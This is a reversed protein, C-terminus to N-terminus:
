CHSDVCSSCAALRPRPPPPPPPRDTQTDPQLRNNLPLLPPHIVEWRTFFKTQDNLESTHPTLEEKRERGEDKRTHKEKKEKAEKTQRREKVREPTSQTGAHSCSSPLRRSSARTRHLSAHLSAPATPDVAEEEGRKGVSSDAQAVGDVFVCAGAPAGVVVLACLSFFVFLVFLFFSLCIYLLSLCPSLSCPISISLHILVSLLSFFFFISIMSTHRYTNVRRVPHISLSASLHLAEVLSSM